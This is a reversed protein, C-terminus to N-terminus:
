ICLLLISLDLELVAVVLIFNIIECCSLTTVLNDFVAAGTMNLAKVLIKNIVISFFCVFETEYLFDNGVVHVIELLILDYVVNYFPRYVRM